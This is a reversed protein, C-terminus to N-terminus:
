CETEFEGQPRRSRERQEKVQVLRQTKKTFLNFWDLGPLRAITYDIRQSTERGHHDGFLFQIVWAVEPDQKVGSGVPTWFATLVRKTLWRAAPSELSVRAKNYYFSFHRREDKNIRMLLPRLLPNATRAALIRYAESATLEQVAGWTLYAADFNSTLRGVVTTGIEELWERFTTNHKVEVCRDTRVEVGSARLFERIARGHFYEEYAWCSLFGMVDPDNIASTHLLARLYVITSTEIDMMYQLCRIEDSTLPYRLADSFDFETLDVKSSNDLYRELNFVAM